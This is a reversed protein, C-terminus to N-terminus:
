FTRICGLYKEGEKEDDYKGDRARYENDRFEVLVMMMVMFSNTICYVYTTQNSTRTIADLNLITYSVTSKFTHIHKKM